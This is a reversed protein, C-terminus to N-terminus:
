FAKNQEWAPQDPENEGKHQQQLKDNIGEKSDEFAEYSRLLAL